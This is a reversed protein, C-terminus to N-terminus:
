KKLQKFLYYSYAIPLLIVIILSLIFTILIEYQFFANFFLLLGGIVFCRGGLRHTRNWVEENDITWPVRIGVTYNQRLKGMYNGLIIFLIGIGALMFMNMSVTPYFIVYNTVFFIYGMFLIFILQFIEWTKKFQQFRERRPDIKPVLPFLILFLLAMAPIIFVGFSKPSWGDIEGKINWHTPIPDPLYPYLMYVAIFMGVVLIIKMIWFLVHEKQQM